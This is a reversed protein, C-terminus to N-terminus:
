HFFAYNKEEKENKIQSPFSFFGKPSVKTLDKM